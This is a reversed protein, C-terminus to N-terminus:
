FILYLVVFLICVFYLLEYRFPYLIKLSDGVNEGIEEYTTMKKM